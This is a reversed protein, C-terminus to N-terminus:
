PGNMPEGRTQKAERELPMIGSCLSQIQEASLADNFIALEDIRGQWYHHGPVPPDADTGQANTTRSGICLAVVPPPFLLGACAGSAVQTGNRYLHLRTGDAVLAVHQWVFM